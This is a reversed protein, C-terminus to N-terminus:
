PMMPMLTQTWPHFAQAVLTLGFRGPGRHRCLDGRGPFGGSFGVLGTGAGDLSPRLRSPSASVLTDSLCTGLHQLIWITRLVALFLPGCRPRAVRPM